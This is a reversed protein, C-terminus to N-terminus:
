LWQKMKEIKKDDMETQNKRLKFMTKYSNIM